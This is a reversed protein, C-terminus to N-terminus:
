DIRKLAHLGDVQEGHGIRLVAGLNGRKPISCSSYVLAAKTYHSTDAAKPENLFGALGDRSGTGEVAM